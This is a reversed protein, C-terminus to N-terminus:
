RPGAIGILNGALDTFHGVSLKGNPHEVPGLIRIGGLEVAERLATEVDDVGVYFM